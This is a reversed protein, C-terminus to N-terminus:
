HLRVIGGGGCVVWAKELNQDLQLSKNSVSVFLKFNGYNYSLELDESFGFYKVAVHKSCKFQKLVILMLREFCYPLTTDFTLRNDTFRGLFRSNKM